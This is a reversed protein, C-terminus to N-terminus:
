IFNFFPMMVFGVSLLVEPSFLIFPLVSRVGWAICLMGLAVKREWSNKEDKIGFKWAQRKGQRSQLLNYM